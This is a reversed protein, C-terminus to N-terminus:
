FGLMPNAELWAGLKSDQSTASSSTPNNLANNMTIVQSYRAIKRSYRIGTGLLLYYANAIAM